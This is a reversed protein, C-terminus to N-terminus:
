SRGGNLSRMVQEQVQPRMEQIAQTISEKMFDKPELGPFRWRQDRWVRGKHPIEVFGAQGVNSGRRFHPGDGGKCSMPLTRDQVWWMLFPKVGQEQAMLYRVSTKIGVQGEGPFATLANLSKSSWGYGKIRETALQAARSSIMTCINVPAPVLAM